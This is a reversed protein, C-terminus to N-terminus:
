NFDSLRTSERAEAVGELEIVEKEDTRNVLVQTREGSGERRLEVLSSVGRKLEELRDEMDILSLVARDLEDREEEKAELLDFEEEDDEQNLDDLEEERETLEMLASKIRDEEDDTIGRPDPLPLQEAEYLVMRSRTM